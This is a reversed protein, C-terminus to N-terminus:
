KSKLYLFKCMGTMVLSAIAMPFLFFLYFLLPNNFALVFFVRHRDSLEEATIFWSSGVVIIVFLCGATFTAVFKVGSKRVEGRFGDPIKSWWYATMIPIFILNFIFILTNWFVFQSYNTINELVPLSVVADIWDIVDKENGVFIFTLLFSAVTPLTCGILFQNNNM